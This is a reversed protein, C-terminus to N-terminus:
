ERGRVEKFESIKTRFFRIIQDAYSEGYISNKNLSQVKSEKEAYKISRLTMRKNLKKVRWWNIFVETISQNKVGVASFVMIFITCCIIVIMRVKPVFPVLYIFFAAILSFIGGEILNRKRLGFIRNIQIVNEHILFVTDKLNQFESM